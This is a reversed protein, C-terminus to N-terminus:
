IYQSNKYKAVITCFLIAEAMVDLSAVLRWQGDGVITKTKMAIWASTILGWVQTCVRSASGRCLHEYCAMVM